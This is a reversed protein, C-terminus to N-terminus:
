QAGRRRRSRRVEMLAFVKELLAERATPERLRGEEEVPLHPFREVFAKTFLGSGPGAVAGSDDSVEIRGVGSCSPSNRKCIYGCLGISELERLRGKAWRIIRETHDAGSDVGVLRPTDPDGALRMPERPTSLGCEVEPCVPVWRVSEGFMGLIFPDRKHGGDYRVNKGLLCASILIPIRDGM